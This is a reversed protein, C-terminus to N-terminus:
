NVKFCIRLTNRKIEHMGICAVCLRSGPNLSAKQTDLGKTIAWSSVVYDMVRLGIHSLAAGKLM